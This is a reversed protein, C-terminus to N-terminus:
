PEEEEHLLKRGWILIQFGYVGLSLLLAVFSLIGLAAFVNNARLNLYLWRFSFYDALLLLSHLTFLLLFVRILQEAYWVRKRVAKTRTVRKKARVYQQSFYLYIYFGLLYLLQELAGYFPNYAKRGLDADFKEGSLFAWLFYVLQGLPLLLHKADTWRLRYAPFLLLKLHFFLLVPLSLTFYVPLFHLQGFQKYLGTYVLTYHLLTAAFLLLLLGFSVNSWRSGSQKYFFLFGIIVAQLQVGVMVLLLLFYYPSHEGVFDPLNM